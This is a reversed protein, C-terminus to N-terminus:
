LFNKTFGVIITPFIYVLRVENIDTPGEMIKTTGSFNFDRAEVFGAFPEQGANRAYMINLGVTYKAAKVTKAAGITFHYQDNRLENLNLYDDFEAPYENLRYHFDTRFGYLMHLTPNINQEYGFGFNFIPEAGGIVSLFDINLFYPQLWPPNVSNKRPETKIIRYADIGAFYEGTFMIRGRVLNKEVGLAISFPTKHHEPINRVRDQIIVDELIPYETPDHDYATSLNSFKDERQVKGLDLFKIFQLNISPLTLTLGARWDGKKFAIAPKLILNFDEYQINYYNTKSAIYFPLTDGETTVGYNDKPYAQASVLYRYLHWRYSVFASLGVSWNENLRYGVGAGFWQESIDSFYEFSGVYHEEGVLGPIVDHDEEYRTNMNIFAKHRTLVGASVRLRDNGFPLMGGILQPYYTFGAGIANVGHGLANKYELWRYAYLNGDVNINPHELFGLAAPNYYMASNDAVGAVVAGGLLTSLAGYQQHWYHNDQANINLFALFLFISTLYRSV